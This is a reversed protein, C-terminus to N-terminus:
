AAGGAHSAPEHVVGLEGADGLLRRLANGAGFELVFVCVLVVSMVQAHEE